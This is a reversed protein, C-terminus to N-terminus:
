ECVKRYEDLSLGSYTRHHSERTSVMFLFRDPGCGNKRALNAREVAKERITITPIEV